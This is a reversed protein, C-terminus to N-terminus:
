YILENLAYALQLWVLDVWVNYKNLFLFWNYNTTCDFTNSLFFEINLLQATKGQFTYSKM